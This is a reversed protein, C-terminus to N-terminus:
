DFVRNKMNFVTYGSFTVNLQTMLVLNDADIKALNLRCARPGKQNQPIQPLLHAGGVRISSTM